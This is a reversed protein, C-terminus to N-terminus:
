DIKLRVVQRVLGCRPPALVAHFEIGDGRALARPAGDELHYGPAVVRSVFPLNTHVPGTSEWVLGGKGAAPPLRIPAEIM